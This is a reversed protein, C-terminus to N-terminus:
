IIENNELVEVVPQIGVPEKKQFLSWFVFVVSMVIMAVGALFFM